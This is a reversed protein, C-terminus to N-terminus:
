FNSLNQVVTEDGKWVNKLMEGNSEELLWASEFRFPKQAVNDSDGFPVLLIPHHDSFDLRALTKVYANLFSVRWPVNCLARDLREFIRGGGHFIPGRWTFKSGVGGLDMLSCANIRDKFTNCKRISAPAGGKKEAAMAIDNFDGGVLWSESM